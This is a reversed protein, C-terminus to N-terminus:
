QARNVRAPTRGHRQGHRFIHVGRRALQNEGAGADRSGRLNGLRERNMQAAIADFVKERRLDTGDVRGPDIEGMMKDEGTQDVRVIVQIKGQIRLEAATGIGTPAFPGFFM